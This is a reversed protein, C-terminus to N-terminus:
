DLLDETYILKKKRYTGQHLHPHCRIRILEEEAGSEGWCKSHLAERCFAALMMMMTMM